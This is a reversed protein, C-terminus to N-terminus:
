PIENDQAVNGNNWQSSPIVATKASQHTIRTVLIIALYTSYLKSLTPTFHLKMPKGFVCEKIVHFTGIQHIFNIFTEASTCMPLNSVSPFIEFSIKCYM